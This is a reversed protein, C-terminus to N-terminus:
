DSDTDKYENKYTFITDSNYLTHKSFNIMKRDVNSFKHRMKDFLNINRVAQKKFSLIKELIIRNYEITRENVLM